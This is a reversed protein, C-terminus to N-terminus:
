RGAEAASPLGAVVARLEEVYPDCRTSSFHDFWFVSTLVILTEAGALVMGLTLQGAVRAALRDGLLLDLVLLATFASVNVVALRRRARTSALRLLEGAPHDYVSSVHHHAHPPSPDFYSM